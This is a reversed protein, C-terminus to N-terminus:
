FYSGRSYSGRTTLVRLRLFAQDYSERIDSGTFTLGKTTLLGPHLVTPQLFGHNYSGTHLFGQKYAVSRSTLGRTTLFGPQLVRLTLVM